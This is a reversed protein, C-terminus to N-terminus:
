SYKLHMGPWPKRQKKPSSSEEFIPPEELVPPPENAEFKTPTTSPTFTSSRSAAPEVMNEDLSPKYFPPPTTIETELDPLSADIVPPPYTVRSPTTDRNIEGNNRSNEGDADENGNDIADKNHKDDQSINESFESDYELQCIQEQSKSPSKATLPITSREYSVDTLISTRKRVNVPLSYQSYKSTIVQGERDLQKHTKVMGSHMSIEASHQKLPSVMEDDDEDNENLEEIIKNEKSHVMLSGELKKLLADAKVSKKQYQQYSMDQGIEHHRQSKSAKSDSNQNQHSTNNTHNLFSFQKDILSEPRFADASQKTQDRKNTPSDLVMSSDVSTIDSLNDIDVTKYFDFSHTSDSSIHSALPLHETKTQEAAAKLALKTQKKEAKSLKRSKKRKPTTPSSPVTIDADTDGNQIQSM